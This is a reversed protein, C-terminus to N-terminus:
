RSSATTPTSTSTVATWRTRPFSNHGKVGTQKASQAPDQSPRSHAQTTAVTTVALAIAGLWALRDYRVNMICEKDKSTSISASGNGDFARSREVLEFTAVTTGL